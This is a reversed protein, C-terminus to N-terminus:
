KNKADRKAHVVNRQSALVQQQGRVPAQLGDVRARTHAGRRPREVRGGHELAHRVAQVEVVGRHGNKRGREM